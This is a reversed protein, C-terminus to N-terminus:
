DKRKQADEADIYQKIMENCEKHLQPKYGLLFLIELVVFTPASFVAAPHSAVKPARKEHYKHGYIQVLWGLAHTTFFFWFARQGGGLADWVREAAHALGLEMALTLLGAPAEYAIPVLTHSFFLYIPNFTLGLTDSRYGDWRLAQGMGAISWVIAPVGFIHIWKNVTNSHAMGYNAYLEKISTGKSM